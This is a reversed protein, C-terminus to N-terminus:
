DFVAQVGGGESSAARTYSYAIITEGERGWFLDENRIILYGAQWDIIYKGEEPLDFLEREQGGDLLHSYVKGGRVLYLTGEEYGILKEQNSGTDYLVQSEGTEIDLDFLIDRDIDDQYLNDDVNPNRSVSIWGIIKGNEVTLHEEEITSRRFANEQLWEIDHQGEEGDISYHFDSTGAEKSFRVKKGDVIISDEINTYLIKNGKEDRIGVIEYREHSSRYYREITIGNFVAQQMRGSKDETEFLTNIDFSDKFIDGEIPCLFVPKNSLDFYLYDRYIDIYFRDRDQNRILNRGEFFDTIDDDSLLMVEEGTEYNYKWLEYGEAGKRVYYIYENWVAFDHIRYELDDLYVYATTTGDKLSYCFVGRTNMYFYNTDDTNRNANSNICNVLYYGGVSVHEYTTDEVESTTEGGGCCCLMMVMLFNLFGRIIQKM